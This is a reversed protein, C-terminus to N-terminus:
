SQLYKFYEEIWEFFSDETFDDLNYDDNLALFEFQDLLDDDVDMEIMYDSVPTFDIKILNTM